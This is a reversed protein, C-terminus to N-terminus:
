TYYKDTSTVHLLNNDTVNIRHDAASIIPPSLKKELFTCLNEPILEEKHSLFVFFHSLFFNIKIHIFFTFFFYQTVCSKAIFFLYYVLVIKRFM